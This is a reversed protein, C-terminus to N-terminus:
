NTCNTASKEGQGRSIGFVWRDYHSGPWYIQGCDLCHYFEDCRSATRPPLQSVVAKKDIREIIGNCPICRTLPKVQSFLDFRRLVERAQEVPKTSRVWYGHTVSKHKLLGRDRTLIIRHEKAAIRVIESDRYDHRYLADFGLTRLLRALKGLHVDVIFATDRLPVERLRVVPSIDLSEFVPYVSVRDGHQLHRDFGVSSGNVLILDVETHPVGLAEIADKVSPRGSFRFPFARKRKDPPLLDNLEAYFRFQATHSM